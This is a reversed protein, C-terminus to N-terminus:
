IIDINIDGATVGIAPQGRTNHHKEEIHGRLFGKKRNVAEFKRIEGL